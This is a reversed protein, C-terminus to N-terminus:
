RASARSVPIPIASAPVLGRVSNGLYVAEASDLDEPFLVAEEAEGSTLLEARLTGPLVGSWLAPTLLRGGKRLVINT